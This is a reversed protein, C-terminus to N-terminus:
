EGLMPYGLRECCGGGMFVAMKGPVFLSILVESRGASARSVDRYSDYDSAPCIRADSTAEM